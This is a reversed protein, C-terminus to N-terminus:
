AVAETAWDGDGLGYDLEPLDIARAPSAHRTDDRMAQKLTKQALQALDDPNVAGGAWRAGLMLAIQLAVATLFTAPLAAERTIRATYRITVPATADSRLTWGDIRWRTGQPRVERLQVLDGPLMCLTPMDTEATITPSAQPLIALVSAFSWDAASLLEDISTDFADALAPLLESQPDHRAVPSLHMFRLAQGIVGSAALDLPPTWDYPPEAPIIIPAAGLRLTVGNLTIKIGDLTLIGM